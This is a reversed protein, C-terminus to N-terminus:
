LLGGLKSKVNLQYSYRPSKGQYESHKTVAGTLSLLNLISQTVLIDSQHCDMMYKIAINTASMPELNIKLIKIIENYRAELSVGFNGNRSIM